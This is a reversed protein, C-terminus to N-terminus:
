DRPSQSSWDWAPPMRLPGPASAQPSNPSSRGSPGPRTASGRGGCAGASHGRDGRRRRRPPGAAHEPTSIGFGLAVPRETNAQRRAITEAFRDGRVASGPRHRRGLGRLPLGAGPGSRRWGSPPTTPAVLPVLALGTGIARRAAGGAGRRLAPRPVILGSVRLAALREVFAERRPRLGHEAYGMLM